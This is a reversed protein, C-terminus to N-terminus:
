EPAVYNGEKEASELFRIHEYGTPWSDNVFAQELEAMTEMNARHCRNLELTTIKWVGCRYRGTKEVAIIYCDPIRGRAVKVMHRYFALQYLYGYKRADSEFFDLDACTKLDVITSGSTHFEFMDLRAQSEILGNGTFDGRVVSECYTAERVLKIAEPHERVANATALIDRCQAATIIPKGHSESWEKYAAATPGFPKGTKPNVPANDAFEYQRNVAGAGELVIAHIMTGLAMAPSEKSTATGDWMKKFHAPCARYEKLSSSTVVSQRRAHYVDAPEDIFWTPWIPRDTM